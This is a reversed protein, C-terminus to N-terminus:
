PRDPSGGDAVGGELRARDARRQITRFLDADGKSLEIGGLTVTARREPSPHWALVRSLLPQRAQWATPDRLRIQVAGRAGSSVSLVDAWEITEGVRHGFFGGVLRSVTIGAPGVLVAPGRHALRRAWSVGVVSFLLAGFSGFLWGPVLGEVFREGSGFVALVIMGVVLAASFVTCAVCVPRNFAYVETATADEM